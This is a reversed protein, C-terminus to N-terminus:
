SIEEKSPKGSGTKKEAKLRAVGAIYKKLEEFSQSGSDTSKADPFAKLLRKQAFSLTKLLEGNKKLQLLAEKQRKYEDIEEKRVNAKEMIILYKDKGEKYLDKMQSIQDGFKEETKTGVKIANKYLVATLKDSQAKIRASMEDIQRIKKNLKLVTLVTLVSDAIFTATLVCLIVVGLVHPVLAVLNAILPHIVKVLLVCAIGWVLSFLLCVYGHINLPMKSYDWWRKHFLKDMLFGTVLELASTVAVSGLYLVWLKDEFPRLLLLVACVGFGYIPCIAGNLFGRNQLIGKQLAKFTVEVCWGLFGYIFFYAAYNYLM